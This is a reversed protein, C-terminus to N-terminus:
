SVESCKKKIVKISSNNKSLQRLDPMINRNQSDTKNIIEPNEWIIQSFGLVEVGCYNQFTHMIFGNLGKESKIIQKTHSLASGRVVLVATNHQQLIVTEEVTVRGVLVLWGIRVQLAGVETEMVAPSTTSQELWSPLWQAM